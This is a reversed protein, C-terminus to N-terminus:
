KNDNNDITEQQNENSKNDDVGNINNQPQSPQQQQQQRHHQEGKMIEMTKILTRRYHDKLTSDLDNPAFRKNMENQFKESSELLSHKKQQFREEIQQLEDMMKKQYVTLSDVQRRLVQVKVDFAHRSEPVITETFIDNVLKNNRYYRAAALHKASFYEDNEDSGDMPQVSFRGDSRQPSNHSQNSNSNHSRKDRKKNMMMMIGERDENELHKHDFFFRIM